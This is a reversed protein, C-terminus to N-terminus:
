QIAPLFLLYMHSWALSSKSVSGTLSRSCCELFSLFPSFEGVRLASSSHSISHRSRQQLEESVFSLICVATSLRHGRSLRLTVFAVTESWIFTKPATRQFISMIKANKLM